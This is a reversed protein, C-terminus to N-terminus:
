VASSYGASVKGSGKSLGLRKWGRKLTGGLKQYGTTFHVLRGSRTVFSVERSYEGVPTNRITEEMGTDALQIVIRGASEDFQGGVQELRRRFDAMARANVAAANRGGRSM